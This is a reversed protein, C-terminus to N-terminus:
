YFEADEGPFNSDRGGFAKTCGPLCKERSLKKEM